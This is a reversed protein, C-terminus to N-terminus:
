RATLAAIVEGEDDTTIVQRNEPIAANHEYVTYAGTQDNFDFFRVGYEGSINIGAESMIKLANTLRQLMEKDAALRTRRKYPIDETSM